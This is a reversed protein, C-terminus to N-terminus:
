ALEIWHMDWGKGATTVKINDKCKRELKAIPRTGEPM